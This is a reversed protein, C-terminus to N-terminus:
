AGGGACQNCKWNAHLHLGKPEKFQKFCGKCRIRVYVVKARNSRSVENNLFPALLKQDTEKDTNRGAQKPDFQNKRPGLQLGSSMQRMKTKQQFLGGDDEDGDYDEDDGFFESADMEDAALPEDDDVPVQKRPKQSAKAAKNKSGPPRGRKKKPPEAAEEPRCEATTLKDSLQNVALVLTKLLEAVENKDSM